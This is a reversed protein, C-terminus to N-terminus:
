ERKKTSRAARKIMEELNQLKNQFNSPQGGGKGHRSTREQKKERMASMYKEYKNAQESHEDDSSSHYGETLMQSEVESRLHRPSQVTKREKGKSGSRERSMGAKVTKRANATVTSTGQRYPSSRGNNMRRIKSSETDSDYVSPRKNSKTLSKKLSSNAGYTKKNVLQSNNKQGSKLSTRSRGSRVSLSRESKESEPSSSRYRAKLKTQAHKAAM